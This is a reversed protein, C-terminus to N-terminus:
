TAGLTSNRNRRQDVLNEYFEEYQRVVSYLSFNECIRKRAREGLLRRKEVGMNILSLWADSLSQPDRPTVVMGTDGVIWASDGVDTVVCPVGCSMAEGVVNPFAEGYASSSTAIDLGATILSVDSREGLLHLHDLLGLSEIMRLLFKNHWDVDKGALVFHVCPNKQILLAAARLFNEHDKMPHYRAILGILPSENPINLELRVDLASDVPRFTDIDFGNPFVVTKDSRYGCNNHQIVSERANYIICAPLWSLFACCRIVLATRKKEYSLSYLTQRINWCVHPRGCFFAAFSAALNGHYMWGQIIDPRIEKAITALRLLQRLTPIFSKMSLTHVPIGLEEIRPGITGKDGLSIVFPSFRKRDHLSLLKYLMM